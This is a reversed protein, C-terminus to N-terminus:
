SGCRLHLRNLRTEQGRSPRRSTTVGESLNFGARAMLIQCYAAAWNGRTLPRQAGPFALSSRPNRNQVSYLRIQRMSTSFAAEVSHGPVIANGAHIPHRKLVETMPGSAGLLPHKPGSGDTVGKLAALRRTPPTPTLSRVRDQRDCSTGAHQSSFVEKRPAPHRSKASLCKSLVSGKKERSPWGLFPDIQNEDAM